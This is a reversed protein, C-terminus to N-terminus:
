QKAGDRRGYILKRFEEVFIILLSVSFAVFLDNLTLATTKLLSQMIPNYIALLQLIVVICTALVLFPSESISSWMTKRESRVNWANWWQFMALATLTMTSARLFDDTYTLSFIFLAGVAMTLGMVFTRVLTLKDFFFKNAGRIVKGNLKEKPELALAAVLFGDTILNLWLIQTPTIPLPLFLLMAGIITFLEGLGTSFLYLIVKKISLFINRGEEIAFVVSRFNDDLLVIDAAEKSVETGINGMAVGLDAAVLSLADNVGDGTMAVIDGRKRFLQIITLKHEPTIRAFVSTRPLQVMLETESLTILDKDTLVNDGDHFIGAQRGIAEATVKHDGTIMVVRVGSQEAIGVSDRVGERLVDRMAFLGGFTLGHIATMGLEEKYNNIVAFAVVRLGDKSFSHIASEIEQRDTKSIKKTRGQNWVSTSLELIAEPAGVVTLFPRNKVRHLTAHYKLKSDFPIEGIQPEEQELEEKHFGIKKGFVLMAAETPDGTIKWQKEKEVFSVQADACFASIKGAFILEPHNVPDVVQEDLLVEGRPEYGSGFVTFHKGNVYVKEIMLENRTITGTKDVAIINAQGLAEAAGLKKILANQKAMRFAGRALVLTIVVPLGEPILSVSVAVGTFFMTGISNGSLVGIIFVAVSVILVGIGIFRSLTRIDKKLPVETDVSIIKKSIAGIVTQLGTKLVIAHANGAVVFTGKFVMNKQDAVSAESASIPETTKSVPVSEGTLAAEDVRLNKMEILRADAPVKNGERLVIVDGPVIERDAVVVEVGDRLVVAETKTFKRLALLTNQAKGEQLLGILANVLLVALIIITDSIHGLFLVIFSAIVLIYILPSQFQRLFLVFHSTPKPAPLSNEGYRKLRKVAEISTLGSETGSLLEICEEIKKSHWIEEKFTNEQQSAVAM